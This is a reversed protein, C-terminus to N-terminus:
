MVATCLGDIEMGGRRRVHQVPGEGWVCARCTRRQRQNNPLLNHVQHVESGKGAVVEVAVLKVYRECPSPSPTNPIQPAPAPLPQPMM